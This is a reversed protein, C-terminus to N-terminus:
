RDDTLRRTEDISGNLLFQGPKTPKILRSRKKTPKKFGLPVAAVSAPAGHVPMYDAEKRHERHQTYDRGAELGTSGKDHYACLRIEVPDVGAEAYYATGRDPHTRKMLEDIGFLAVKDDGKEGTKQDKSYTKGFKKTFYEATEVDGIGILLQSSNAIVTAAGQSDYLKDIQGKSQSILVLRIDQGSSMSFARELIEINGYQPAEDLVINIPRRVGKIPPNIGAPWDVESCVNLATTVVMRLWAGHSNLASEPLVVFVVTKDKEKIDRMRFKFDLGSLDNIMDDSDVWKFSKAFMNLLTVIGEAYSGKGLIVNAQQAGAKITRAIPPVPLGQKEQHDGYIAMGSLIEKRKVPGMMAFDACFSVINDRESFRRKEDETFVVDEPTVERPSVAVQAAMERERMMREVDETMYVKSYALLGACVIRAQDTWYEAGSGGGKGTPMLCEALEALQRPAQNDWANIDFMPNFMCEDGTRRVGRRKACRRMPDLLIVNYGKAKLAEAALDYGEGKPDVLITSGQHMLLNPVISFVGKGGRTPAIIWLHQKRSAKHAVKAQHGANIISDRPVVRGLFWDGEEQEYGIRWTQQYKGLGATGEEGGKPAAGAYFRAKTQQWIYSSVSM